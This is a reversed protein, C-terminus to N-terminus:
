CENLLLNYPKNQHFVEHARKANWNDSDPGGYTYSKGSIIADISGKNIYANNIGLQRNIANALPCETHSLYKFGIGIDSYISINTDFDEPLITIEIQM